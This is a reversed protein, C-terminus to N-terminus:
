HAPAKTVTPLDDILKLATLTSTVSKSNDGASKAQLLLSKAQDNEGLAYALHGQNALLKAHSTTSLLNQSDLVKARALWNSAGTYDAHSLSYSALSNDVTFVNQKKLCDKVPAPAKDLGSKLTDSVNGLLSIGRQYDQDSGAKSLDLLSLGLTYKARLNGPDSKLVDEAIDRAKDPRGQTARYQLAQDLVTSPECSIAHVDLAQASDATALVAAIAIGTVRKRM